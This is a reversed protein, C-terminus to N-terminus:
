LSFKPGANENFIQLCLPPNPEPEQQLSAELATAWGNFNETKLTWENGHCEFVFTAGSSAGSSADIEDEDARCSAAPYMYNMWGIM